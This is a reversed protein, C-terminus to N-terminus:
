FELTPSKLRKNKVNTSSKFRQLLPAYITWAMWTDKFTAIGDISVKITIQNCDWSIRDRRLLFHPYGSGANKTYVYTGSSTQNFEVCDITDNVGASDLQDGNPYIHLEWNCGHLTFQETRFKKKNQAQKFKRKFVGEIICTAEHLEESLVIPILVTSLAM